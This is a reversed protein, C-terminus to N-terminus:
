SCSPSCVQARNISIRHLPHDTAIPEVPSDTFLQSGGNDEVIGPSSASAFFSNLLVPGSVSYSNSVNLLTLGKVFFAFTIAKRKPLGENTAASDMSAHPRYLSGADARKSPSRREVTVSSQFALARLSAEEAELEEKMRALKTTGKKPSQQRQAEALREVSKWALQKQKQRWQQYEDESDNGSEHGPEGEKGEVSPSQSGGQAAEAGNMTEGSEYTDRGSFTNEIGSYRDNREMTISDHLMSTTSTSASVGNNRRSDSKRAELRLTCLYAFLQTCRLYAFPQRPLSTFPSCVKSLPQHFRLLM